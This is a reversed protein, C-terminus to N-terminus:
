EDVWIRVLHGVNCSVDKEHGTSILSKFVNTKHYEHSDHTQVYSILRQSTIFCCCAIIDRVNWGLDQTALENYRLFIEAMRIDYLLYLTFLELLKLYEIKSRISIWSIEPDTFSIFISNVELRKNNSISCWKGVSKELGMTHIRWVGTSIDFCM